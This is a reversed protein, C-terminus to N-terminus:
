KAILVKVTSGAPWGLLQSKKFMNQAKKNKMLECFNKTLEM